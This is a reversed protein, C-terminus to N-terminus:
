NKRMGCGACAARKAGQIHLATHQARSFPDRQRQCIPLWVSTKQRRRDSVFVKPVVDQSHVSCPPVEQSSLCALPTHSAALETDSCMGASPIPAHPAQREQAGGGGGGGGVVARARGAGAPWGSTREPAQRTPWPRSHTLGQLGSCPGWRRRLARGRTLRSCRNSLAGKVRRVLERRPMEAAQRCVARGLGAESVESAQERPHGLHPRQRAAAQTGCPHCSAACLHTAPAPIRAPHGSLPPLHPGAQRMAQGVDTRGGGAPVRWGAPGLRAAASGGGGGGAPKERTRRAVCRAVPWAKAQLIMGSGRGPLATFSFRESRAAMMFTPAPRSSRCRM